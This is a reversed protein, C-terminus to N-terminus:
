AVVHNTGLIFERHTSRYKVGNITATGGTVEDLWEELDFTDNEIKQMDKPSFIQWTDQRPENTKKCFFKNSPKSAVITTWTIGAGFDLYVSEVNFKVNPFEQILDYAIVKLKKAIFSNM